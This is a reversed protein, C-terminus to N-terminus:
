TGLVSVEYVQIIGTTISLNLEQNWNSLRRKSLRIYKNFYSLIENRGLRIIESEEDSRLMEFKAANFIEVLIPPTLSFQEITKSAADAVSVEKRLEFYTNIIDDTNM